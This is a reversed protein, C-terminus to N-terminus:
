FAYSRSSVYSNHVIGHNVHNLPLKETAEALGCRKKEGYNKVLVEGVRGRGQGRADIVRKAQVIKVRYLDLIFDTASNSLM